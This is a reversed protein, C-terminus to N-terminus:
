HSIYETAPDGDIRRRGTEPHRHWGTPEGEFGRESWELIAALGLPATQYCWREIYSDFDGIENRKVTWHFMLRCLMLCQDNGMDHMYICSPDSAMFQAKFTEFDM